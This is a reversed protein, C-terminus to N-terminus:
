GYIKGESVRRRWFRELVKCSPAHTTDAKLRVRMIWCAFRVTIVDRDVAKKLLVNLATLINNVTEARQQGCAAGASCPRACKSRPM